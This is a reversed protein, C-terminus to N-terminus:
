SCTGRIGMHSEPKTMAIAIALRTMIRWRVVHDCVPWTAPKFPGNVQTSEVPLWWIMTLGREVIAGDVM